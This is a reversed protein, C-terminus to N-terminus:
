SSSSSIIIIITVPTPPSMGTNPEIGYWDVKDAVDPLSSFICTRQEWSVVFDADGQVLYPIPDQVFGIDLDIYIVNYGLKLLEFMPVFMVLAGFRDFSPISGEYDAHGGGGIVPTTKQALLAWFQEEPYPLFETTIGEARL